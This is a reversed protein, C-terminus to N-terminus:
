LVQVSNDNLRGEAWLLLAQCVECAGRGRRMTARGILLDRYRSSAKDMTGPADTPRPNLVRTKVWESELLPHSRLSISRPSLQSSQCFTAM